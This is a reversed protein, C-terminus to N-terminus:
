IEAQRIAKYKYGIVQNFSNLVPQANTISWYANPQVSRNSSDLINKIWTGPRLLFESYFSIRDSNSSTGMTFNINKTFSLENVINNGISKETYNWYDGSYKNRIIASTKM